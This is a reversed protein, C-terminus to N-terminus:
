TTKGSKMGALVGALYVKQEDTLEKYLQLIRKQATLKKYHKMIHKM